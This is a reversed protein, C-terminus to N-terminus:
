QHRAGERYVVRHALDALAIYDFVPLGCRKHILETYPTMDSCEVVIARIGDTESVLRDAASLVERRLLDEDVQNSDEDIMRRFEVADTMDSFALRSFDVGVVDEFYERTLYERYLTLIGVKADPGVLTQALSVFMLPSTYVPVRVSRSVEEQMLAFFGCSTLIAYAGRQEMDQVAAILLQAEPSLHGEEDRVPPSPPNYLGPIRRVEVSFPYTDENGANGSVRRYERDLILIGLFDAAM